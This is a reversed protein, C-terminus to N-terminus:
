EAHQVFQAKFLEIMSGFLLFLIVSFKNECFKWNDVNVCIDM